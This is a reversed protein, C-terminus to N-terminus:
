SLQSIAPPGADNMRIRVAEGRADIISLTVPLSIGEDDADSFLVLSEIGGEAMGVRIVTIKGTTVQLMTVVFPLEFGNVRLTEMSRRLATTFDTTDTTM